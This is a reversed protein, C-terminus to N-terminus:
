KGDFWKIKLRELEGSKDLRDLGRNIRELLSQNNKGVAVGYEERTLLSGTMKLGTEGKLLAVAVGNDMVAADVEGRKLAELLSAYTPLKVIDASNEGGQIGEVLMAGTTGTQVAVKLGKLAAADALDPDAIRRVAIQGTTFYPRSFAVLESRPKTITVTAIAADLGGDRVQELLGSFDGAVMVPAFGEDRGIAKILDIEFGAIHGSQDKFTFPVFEPYTGVRIEEACAFPALLALAVALLLARM